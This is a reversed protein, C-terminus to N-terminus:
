WDIGGLHFKAFTANPGHYIWVFYKFFYIPMRDVDFYNQLIDANLTASMLVITYGFRVQNEKVMKLLLDMELSRVDIFQRGGFVRFKPNFYVNVDSLVNTFENM